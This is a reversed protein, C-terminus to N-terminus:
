QKDKDEDGASVVNEVKDETNPVHSKKKEDIDKAKRKKKRFNRFLGINSEEKVEPDNLVITNTDTDVHNLEVYNGTDEPLHKDRVKKKAILGVIYYIVATTPVGLLMGLFGFLGGGVVIAVIVWFVSIGTSEGLIKPGIVNGDLQQLALVFALFILGKIPDTIFIIIVTPVAGIYPGFVPIVNTIGVIVSVLVAYPMRLILCGIYCLIGIIISDIIKGIIFGYFIENTKRGVDMIVNAKDAKFIGYIIKKIQGRFTDKSILAYVSVFIGVIVNVIVHGVTVAGTAINTLSSKDGLNFYNFLWSFGRQMIDSFESNKIESVQKDFQYKTLSNFGDLLSKFKDGFSGTLDKVTAVTDPIILLICLTIIALLIILAIISTIVRVITRTKDPNKSKTAFKKNLPKEMVKMIPNMLFAMAFGIVFPQVILGFKDLAVMLGDYRYVAFFFVIIICVSMILAICIKKLVKRPNEELMESFKKRPEKEEM